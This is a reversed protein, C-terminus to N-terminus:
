FGLNSEMHCRRVYRSLLDSEVDNLVPHPQRNPDISYLDKCLLIDPKGCFWPMGGNGETLNCLATYDTLGIPDPYCM